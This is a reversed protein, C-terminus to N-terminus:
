KTAIDDIKTEQMEIEPCLLVSGFNVRTIGTFDKLTILEVTCLSETPNLNWDTLQVTADGSLMSAMVSKSNQHTDLGSTIFMIRTGHDKLTNCYDVLTEYQASFSVPGEGKWNSWGDTIFIFIDPKRQIAEEFAVSWNTWRTYKDKHNNRRKYDQMANVLEHKDLTETVALISTGFEVVCLQHSDRAFGSKRAFEVLQSGILGREERDISSSGDIAIMVRSKDCPTIVPNECIETQEVIRLDQLGLYQDMNVSHSNSFYLMISDVQTDFWVPLAGYIREFILMDDKMLIDKNVDDFSYAPKVVLDERYGIIRVGFMLDPIKVTALYGIGSLSFTVKGEKNPELKVVYANTDAKLQISSETLERVEVDKMSVKFAELFHEAKVQLPALLVIAMAVGPLLHKSRIM